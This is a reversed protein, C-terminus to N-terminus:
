DFKRGTNMKSKIQRILELGEVTFHREDNMLKAVKCWDLYDLEKVGVIPYKNFLPILIKNIHELKNITVSVAPFSTAKALKGSGLYKILLEMLKIYREHQSIKFKLQV